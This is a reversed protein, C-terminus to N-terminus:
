PPNAPTLVLDGLSIAAEGNTAADPVVFCHDLFAIQKMVNFDFSTTDPGSGRYGEIVNVFLNYTGPLVEPVVFSGDPEIKLNEVARSVRKKAAEESIGLRQGVDRLTKREYFRSLVALRDQESLGAVAQDLHPALVEWDFENASSANESLMISASHERSKRRQEARVARAAVFRTTRFLWGSLITGRRLSDAKRALLVFVSQVVDEALQPDGVQRRAASYVWDLHLRVLEAFAAESGHKRYAEILEWDDMTRMIM